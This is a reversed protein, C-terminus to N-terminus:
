WAVAAKLRKALTNKRERLADIRAQKEAGTLMRDNAIRREAQGLQAMQRAAREM